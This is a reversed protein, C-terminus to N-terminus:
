EEPLPASHMGEASIISFDWDDSSVECDFNPLLACARYQEFSNGFIDTSFPANEFRAHVDDLWRVSNSYSRRIMEPGTCSAYVSHLNTRIYHLLPRVLLYRLRSVAVEELIHPDRILLNQNSPGAIDEEIDKFDDLLQLSFLFYEVFKVFPQVDRKQRVFIPLEIPLFLFCCKDLTAKYPNEENYNQFANEYRESFEFWLKQYGGLSEILVQCHLAIERNWQEIYDKEEKLRSGDKIYDDLVVYSRMLVCLDSLKGRLSENREDIAESLAQGYYEGLLRQTGICHAMAPLNFHRPTPGPALSSLLYQFNEANM